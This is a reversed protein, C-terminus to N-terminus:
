FGNKLFCRSDVSNPEVTGVERDQTQSEKQNPLNIRWAWRKWCETCQEHIWHQNNQSKQQKNKLKGNQWRKPWGLSPKNKMSVTKNESHDTVFIGFTSNEPSSKHRNVHVCPVSFHNTTREQTGQRTEAVRGELFYKQTLGDWCPRVFIGNFGWWPSHPSHKLVAKQEVIWVFLDTPARNAWQRKFIGGPFFAESCIQAFSDGFRHPVFVM